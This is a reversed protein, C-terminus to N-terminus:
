SEAAQAQGRRAWTMAAWSWLRLSQLAVDRCTSEGGTTRNVVRHRDPDVGRKLLARVCALHGEQAALYLPTVQSPRTRTHTDRRGPVTVALARGRGWRERVKLALAGSETVMDVAENPDDGLNLCRELEQM